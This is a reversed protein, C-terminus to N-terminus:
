PCRSTKERFRGGRSFARTTQLIKEIGKKAGRDMNIWKVRKDMRFWTLQRKAYRRTNKKILDKLEEFEKLAEAGELERDKGELGKDKGELGKDKGELGKDGRILGKKERRLYGMVERYGIAQRATLSLRKGVLSRVEDMFGQEFMEDVRKDIRNYLRERKRNLAFVVVNYKDSLPKTKAKLESIRKGSTYYVELARVIKKTDNPHIKKASEPDIERLKAYLNKQRYLKTRLREDKPPSPFLGDVLAKMYLGTGGVLLPSKGKAHIGKIARLARRRFDAASFERGPDLIDIMHHPVIKRLALPPKQTGIDMGKYIQMSDCSIIEANIKKSISIAIGTKGVATPGVLFIINKKDVKMQM